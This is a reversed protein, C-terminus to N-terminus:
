GRAANALCTQQNTRRIQKRRTSRTAQQRRVEALWARYPTNKRAGWSYAEALTKRLGQQDSRGIRRIVGGVIPAARDAWSM